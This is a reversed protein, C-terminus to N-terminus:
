VVSQAHQHLEHATASTQVLCEGHEVIDALLIVELDVDLNISTQYLTAEITSLGVSGEGQMVFDNAFAEERIRHGVSDQHATAELSTHNVFCNLHHLTRM